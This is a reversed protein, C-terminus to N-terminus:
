TIIGEASHPQALVIDVPLGWTNKHEHKLIKFGGQKLLQQTYIPRCDVLVPLARHVLEYLRAPWPQPQQRALSVVGIRGNSRLVRQCESLVIQIEESSFLELTFSLFLADMSADPYPLSLADGIQLDIRDRYAQTNKEAQNLMGESLDIGHVKGSAGVEEALYALARGTGFGIELVREGEIMQLWDLGTQTLPWESSSIFDYIASIRNYSNRAAEHSREVPSMPPLLPKTSKEFQLTYYFFNGLKRKLKFSATEALQIIHSQLPYDPDLLLESFVLLGYHALVRRFEQMAREPHPIEGIVATMYIVDFTDEKFPLAYVDAIRVDINTIGERRAREQVRAVMDPEIDVAYIMGGNGVRRAAAATYRGNGPGIELVTMGPRLGHRLATRDPPTILKRRLPNDIANALFSPIPFKYFHRIIRVITHLIVFVLPLLLLWKILSRLISTLVSPNKNVTIEQLCKEWTSM